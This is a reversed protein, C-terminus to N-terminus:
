EAPKVEIQITGTAKELCTASLMYSGAAVTGACGDTTTLDAAIIPEGDMEPLKDISQEGSMGIIEVRVSGKKLDSSIEIKEGEDVELSGVSFFADKQANKAEIVMRKETNENLGFVSKGCGTLALASLVLLVTVSLCVICKTRIRKMRKIRKM